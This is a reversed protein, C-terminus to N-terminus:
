VVSLSANRELDLLTVAVLRIPSTPAATLPVRLFFQATVVSAEILQM